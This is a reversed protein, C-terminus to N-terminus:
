MTTSTQTSTSHQHCGIFRWEERQSIGGNSAAFLEQHVHSLLPTHPSSACQGYRAYMLSTPKAPPPPPDLHAGFLSCTRMGEIATADLSRLADPGIAAKYFTTPLTFKYADWTARTWAYEDWVAHAQKITSCSLVVLGVLLPIRQM